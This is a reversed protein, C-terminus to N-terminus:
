NKSFKYKWNMFGMGPLVEGEFDFLAANEWSSGSGWRDKM